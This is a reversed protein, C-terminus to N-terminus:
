ECCWLLLLISKPKTKIKIITPTEIKTPMESAAIKKKSSSFLRMPSSSSFFEGGKQNELIRLFAARWMKSGIDILFPM